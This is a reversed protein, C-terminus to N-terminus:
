SESQNGTGGCLLGYPSGVRLEFKLVNSGDVRITHVFLVLFTTINPPLNTQNGYHTNTINTHNRAQLTQMSQYGFNINLRVDTLVVPKM